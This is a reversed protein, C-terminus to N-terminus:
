MGICCFVLVLVLLEVLVKGFVVVQVDQLQGFIVLIDCYVLGVCVVVVVLVVSVLQDGVEGDFCNNIVSCFGQVVFVVLDGESIQLVVSFMDIFCKIFM